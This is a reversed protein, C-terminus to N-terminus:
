HVAPGGAADGFLRSIDPASLRLAAQVDLDRGSPSRLHLGTTGGTGPSLPLGSAFGAASVGPMSDCGPPQSRGCDRASLSPYAPSSRCSRRLSTARTFARDADPSARFSRALLAAGVLLVCALAVQTAMIVGRFRATRSRASWGVPATRRRGARGRPEAQAGAARAPNRVGCDRGAVDHGCVVPGSSSRSTTSGRSTRRCFSAAGDAPIRAGARPRRNGGTRAARPAGRVTAARDVRAASLAWRVAIERRRAMTRALQINAVNATATVLLLTVVAGLLILIAPRVDATM